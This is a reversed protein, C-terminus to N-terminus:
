LHRRESVSEREKMPFLSFAVFLSYLVLPKKSAAGPGEKVQPDPANHSM